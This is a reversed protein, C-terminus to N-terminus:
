LICKHFARFYISTLLSNYFIKDLLNAVAPFTMCDLDFLNLAVATYHEKLINPIYM